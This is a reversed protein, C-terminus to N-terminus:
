KNDVAFRIDPLVSLIHHRYAGRSLRQFFTFFRQVFHSRIKLAM